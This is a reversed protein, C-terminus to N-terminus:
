GLTRLIAQLTPQDAALGNLTSRALQLKAQYRQVNNDRAAIAAKLQVLVEGLDHALDPNQAQIQQRVQGLTACVADLDPHGAVGAPPAVLGKYIDHEAYDGGGTNINRQTGYVQTVPAQPQNIFGQSGRADIKSGAVKDGSIKDGAVIDGAGSITNGSGFNIGGSQTTHSIDGTMPGNVAVGVRANGAINQQHKVQQAPRNALEDDDQLPPFGYKVQLDHIHLGYLFARQNAGLASDKAGTFKLIQDLGAQSAQDFALTGQSGRGQGEPFGPSLASQSRAAGTCEVFLYRDGDAAWQRLVTLDELVDMDFAAAGAAQEATARTNTLSVGLFAHGDVAIIIPLLDNALCMGALLV